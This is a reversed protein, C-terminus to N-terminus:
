LVQVATAELIVVLVPPLNHNDVAVEVVLLIFVVEQEL